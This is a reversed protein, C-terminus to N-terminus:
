HVKPSSFVFKRNLFFSVLALPFALIAQALYRSTVLHHLMILGGLNLFYIIIYVGFFKFILENQHSEFVLVGITKFNFLTGAVTSIIIAFPYHIGLFIALAFVLYGFITNIVGVLLFKIFQHKLLQRPNQAYIKLLSTTSYM